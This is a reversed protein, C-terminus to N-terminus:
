QYTNISARLRQRGDSVPLYANILVKVAGPLYANILVKVAGSLIPLCIPYAKVVSSPIPVSHNFVGRFNKNPERKYIDEREIINREIIYTVLM